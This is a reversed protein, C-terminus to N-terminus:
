NDGDGGGQNHCNRVCAEYAADIADKAAKFRDNEDKHCQANGGCARENDAHRRTEDKLADKRADACAKVCNSKRQFVSARVGNLNDGVMQCQTLALSAAALAALLLLRMVIRSAAATSNARSERTDHSIRNPVTDM